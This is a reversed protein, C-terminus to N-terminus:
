PYPYGDGIRVVTYATDSAGTSSFFKAYVVVPGDPTDYPIISPFSTFYSFNPSCSAAYLGFNVVEYDALRRAVLAVACTGSYDYIDYLVTYEVLQGQFARSRPIPVGLNNYDATYVCSYCPVGNAYEGMTVSTIEQLADGGAVRNTHAIGQGHAGETSKGGAREYLQNAFLESQVLARELQAQEARKEATAATAWLLTLLMLGGVLVMLRRRAQGM